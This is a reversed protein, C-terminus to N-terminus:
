WSIRVGLGAAHSATGVGIDGDYRVFISANDALQTKASFGVLATDRSPTAGYVTFAAAPAGVRPFKM